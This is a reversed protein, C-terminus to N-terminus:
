VLGISVAAFPSWSLSHQFFGESNAPILKRASGLIEGFHRILCEILKNRGTM